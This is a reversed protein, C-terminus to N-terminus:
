IVCGLLSMNLLSRNVPVRAGPPVLSFSSCRIVLNPVDSGADDIERYAAEDDIGNRGLRRM